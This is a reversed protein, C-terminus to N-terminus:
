TTGENSKIERKKHWKMLTAESVSEALVPVKVDVM